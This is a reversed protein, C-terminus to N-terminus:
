VMKSQSSMVSSPMNREGPAVAGSEHYPQWFRTFCCAPSLACSCSWPVWSEAWGRLGAWSPKAGGPARLPLKIERLMFTKHWQLCTQFSGERGGRVVREREGWGFFFWTATIPYCIGWLPRAKRIEGLTFQEGWSVKNRDQLGKEKLSCKTFM